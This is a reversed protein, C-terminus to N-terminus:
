RTLVYRQTFQERADANLEHAMTKHQPQRTELYHAPTKPSLAQEQIQGISRSVKQEVFEDDPSVLHASAAQRNPPSHRHIDPTSPSHAAFALSLEPQQSPLLHDRRTIDGLRHERVHTEALERSARIADPIEGVLKATVSQVREHNLNFASLDYGRQQISQKIIRSVANTHRAREAELAAAGHERVVETLYAAVKTEMEDRMLGFSNRREMARAEREQRVDRAFSIQEDIRSFNGLYETKTRAAYAVFQQHQQQEHPTIVSQIVALQEKTKSPEANKSEGQQADLQRKHEQARKPDLAIRTLTQLTQSDTVSLNRTQLARAAREMQVAFSRALADEATRARLQLEIGREVAHPSNNTKELAAQEHPFKPQQESRQLDSWALNLAARRIERRQSDPLKMQQASHIRAPLHDLLRTWEERDLASDAPTTIQFRLQGESERSIKMERFTTLIEDLQRHEKGNSARLHEAAAEIMKPQKAYEALLVAVTELDQERVGRVLTQREHNIPVDDDADRGSIAEVLSAAERWLGAGYYLRFSLNEYPSRATKLVTDELRTRLHGSTERSNARHEEREIEKVPTGRALAERTENVLKFFYNREAPDLQKGLEYLNERSFRNRDSTPPNLYDGLFSKINQTMRAPSDHRTRDFERMIIQLNHSPEVVGRELSQLRQEKDHASVSRSSRVARMEDTYHAPAPALLLARLHSLALPRRTQEGRRQDERREDAFQDPRAGRLYNERRIDNIAAQLERTTQSQDLRAGFDRFLRNENRLRTTEDQARYAVYERAFDYLENRAASASTIERGHFSEFLRTTLHLQRAISTLTRYENLNTLPLRDNSHAGLSVFVPRVDKETTRTTEVKLQAREAHLQHLTARVRERQPALTSHADQASTIDSGTLRSFYAQHKVIEAFNVGQAREIAPSILKDALEDRELTRERRHEQQLQTFPSLPPQEGVLEPYNILQKREIHRNTFLANNSRILAERELVAREREEATFRRQLSQFEAGARVTESHRLAEDSLREREAEAAEYATLRKTQERYERALRAGISEIAEARERMTPERRAIAEAVQERQKAFEPPNTVLTRLAYLARLEEARTVAYERNVTPDHATLIRSVDADLARRDDARQDRYLSGMIDRPRTGTELQRDIRPIIEYRLRQEETYTLGDPVRPPERDLRVREYEISSLNGIGSQEHELEARAREHEQADDHELELGEISEIRYTLRGHTEHEADRQRTELGREWDEFAVFEGRERKWEEARMASALLRMRELTPEVQTAADAHTLRKGTAADHAIDHYFTQFVTLRTTGDGTRGAIARGLEVFEAAVAKAQEYGVLPTFERVAHAYSGARIQDAQAAKGTSERPIVFTDQYITAGREFADRADQSISNLHSAHEARTRGDQPSYLERLDDRANTHSETEAHARRAEFSSHRRLNEARMEEVTQALADRKEERDVQGRMAPHHSIREVYKRYVVAREREDANRGALKRGLNFFDASYSALAREDDFFTAFLAEADRVSKLDARASVELNAELKAPTRQQREADM